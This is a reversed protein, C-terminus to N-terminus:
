PRFRLSFLYALNRVGDRWMLLKPEGIRPRYPIHREAFRIGPRRIAEIKIEESLAMGTSKLRLKELISRRFVWMGSQSDRIPRLFLVAAGITLVLNGLRNMPAMASRDSLPFRSGSVFDLRERELTEVLGVIADTPYTGDADMTVIVENRAARFGAQYAAGYGPTTERVVRAGLSAAVEATRDTCNNDVVVIEDIGDPLSEIVSRVGHEENYCPLILTVTKGSIL